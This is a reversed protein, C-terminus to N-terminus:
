MLCSAALRQVLKDTVEFASMEPQLDYTAVKPSDVLIRTEGNYLAERGGSFFFTVHAYKETEAIRLQTKGLSALYEGLSNKLHLTSIRVTRCHRRRIRQDDCLDVTGTNDQACSGSLRQM